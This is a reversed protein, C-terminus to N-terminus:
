WATKGLPLLQPAATLDRLSCQADCSLSAAQYYAVRVPVDTEAGQVGHCGDSHSGGPRSSKVLPDAAPSKYSNM